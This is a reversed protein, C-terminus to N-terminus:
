EFVETVFKLSGRKPTKADIYKGDHTLGISSYDRTKLDYVGMTFADGLDFSLESKDAGGGKDFKVAKLQGILDRFIPHIFVKQEKVVQATIIAMLSRQSIKSGEVKTTDTVKQGFSVATAVVNRDRLDQIFGPHAADVKCYNDYMKAKMEVIDTMATPSPRDYQTAEKVYLIEDLEELGVLGFKSSGFAPDAYLGKRGNRLTLDYEKVVMDIFPFINGIGIGYKGQFEREFGLSKKAENIEFESYIGDRVGKEYLSFVKTYQSPEEREMTEYLGGPLNATSNFVVYPHTKAEYREVVVRAENQLSLPFFDAEDVFWFRIKELGRASSLNHSPFAEIICDNIIVRSRQASPQYEINKFLKTIRNIEDIALDLRPATIIGMSDGKYDDSSACLWTMYGLFFTTAGMGTAKKVWLYRNTKLADYWEKEYELMDHSTIEIIDQGNPYKGMLHEKEPLGVIHWFCNNGNKENCIKEHEKKDWIWFPKGRLEPVDIKIETKDGSPIYRNGLNELANYVQLTKNRM